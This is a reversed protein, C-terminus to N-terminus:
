SRIGFMGSGRRVGSICCKAWATAFASRKLGAGAATFHPSPHAAPWGAAPRLNGCVRLLRRDAASGEEIPEAEFFLGRCSPTPKSAAAMATAIASRTAEQGCTVLVDNWDTGQHRREPLPEPLVIITNGAACAAKQAAVVGGNPLPPDKLLHHHDNDGFIIFLRDPWRERLVRVAEPLNSTDLAVVVPIGHYAEHCTAGNAYGESFGLPGPM